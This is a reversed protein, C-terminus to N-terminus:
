LKEINAISYKQRRFVLKMLVDLYKIIVTILLFLAFFGASILGMLPAWGAVPKNQGFYAVVTYVGTVVMFIAMIVSIAFSVKYAMNTFLVLADIATNNKENDDFCEGSEKINESNYLISTINLGSSAYIAKRYPITKSYASVRNIARRSIVRFRETVLKNKTESFHNYVAYFMRSTVKRKNKPPVAAVIDYGELAKRYVEMILEESYDVYSSDFEFVFDGIALDIGANMSAELGHQFGLNIITVIVDEHKQKFRKVEDIVANEAEDNVCILEYKKFNTYFIKNIMELFNEVNTDRKHLCVVASVFNNEKINM